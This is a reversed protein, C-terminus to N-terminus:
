EGFNEDSLQSLHPNGELKVRPETGAACHRKYEAVFTDYPNRILYIIKKFTWNEPLPGLHFKVAIVNDSVIGEGLMGAEIYDVDCDRDSGTYIGTITELLQRVWSNGSGPFSVLLTPIGSDRFSMKKCNHFQKPVWIKAQSDSHFKYIKLGSCYMFSSQLSPSTLNSIHFKECLKSLTSEPLYPLYSRFKDGCNRAAYRLETPDAAVSEAIETARTPIKSSQCAKREICCFLYINYKTHASLLTM